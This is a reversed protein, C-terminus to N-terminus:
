SAPDQATVLDVEEDGVTILRGVAGWDDLLALRGVVVEEATEVVLRLEATDRGVERLDPGARQM